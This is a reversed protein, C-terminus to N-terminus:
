QEHLEESDEVRAIAQTISGYCLRRCCPLCFPHMALTLYVSLKGTLHNSHKETM